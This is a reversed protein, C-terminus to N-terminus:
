LVRRFRWRRKAPVNGRNAKPLSLLNAFLRYAGSVGAPLQRFWAYSTYVYHGRGLRLYVAGGNNAPEDADHSELLPVYAPDFTVFNYLNREQVWGEWDEGTIQNPFNFAPHAPQLSTVPAGEDTVRAIEEGVQMKAPLPPLGREAYDPRQYQVILAGGRRAFQLL